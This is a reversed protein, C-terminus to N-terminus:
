LILLLYLILHRNRRFFSVQDFYKSIWKGKRDSEPPWEPLPRKPAAPPRPQRANEGLQDVNDTGPPLYNSLDMKYYTPDRAQSNELASM